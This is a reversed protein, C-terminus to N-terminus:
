RYFTSLFPDDGTFGGPERPKIIYCTPEHAKRHHLVAATENLRYNKGGTVSYDVTPTQIRRM